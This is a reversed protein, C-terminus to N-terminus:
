LKMNNSWDSRGSLWLSFYELACSKSEITTTEDRLADEMQFPMHIRTLRLSRLMPDDELFIPSTATHDPLLYHKSLMPHWRFCYVVLMLLGASSRITTWDKWWLYVNAYECSDVNRWPKRRGNGSSGRTWDVGCVGCRGFWLRVLWQWSCLSRLHVRTVRRLCPM